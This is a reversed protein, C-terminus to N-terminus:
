LYLLVRLPAQELKRNAPTVNIANPAIALYGPNSTLITGHPLTFLLNKRNLLHTSIGKKM